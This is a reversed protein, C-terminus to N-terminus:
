VLIEMLPKIFDQATFSKVCDFTKTFCGTFNHTPEFRLWSECGRCASKAVFHKIVGEDRVPLRNEPIQTSYAVIIPTKTCAALHILGNDIGIVALSREIWEVAEHLSTKDRMDICGETDLHYTRGSFETKNSGLLVPTLGLAKVETIIENWVTTHLSRSMATFNPTLIVLKSEEKTVSMGTGLSLYPMHRGAAPMALALTLYGHATLPMGLQLFWSHDFNTILEGEPLQKFLELDYIGRVQPHTAFWDVYLPLVSPFVFLTVEINPYDGLLAKVAPARAIQDGMGGWNLGINIHKVNSTM